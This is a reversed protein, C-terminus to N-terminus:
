TPDDQLAAQIFLLVNFGPLEIQAMNKASGFYSNTFINVYIM